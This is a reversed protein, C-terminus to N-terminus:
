FVVNIENILRIPILIIKRHSYFLLLNQLFYMWSIYGSTYVHIDYYGGMILSYLVKLVGDYIWASQFILFVSQCCMPNCSM